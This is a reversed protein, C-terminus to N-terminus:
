VARGGASRPGRAARPSAAQPTKLKENCNMGQLGARRLHGITNALVRNKGRRPTASISVRQGTRPNMWIYHRSGALWIQWGQRRALEEYRRLESQFSATM